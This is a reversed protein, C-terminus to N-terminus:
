HFLLAGPHFTKEPSEGETERVPPPPPPLPPPTLLPPWPPCSPPPPPPPPFWGENINKNKQKREGRPQDLWVNFLTETILVSKLMDLPPTGLSGWHKFRGRASPPHTLTVFFVVVCMCAKHSVAEWHVPSPGGTFFSNLNLTKKRGQDPRDGADSAWMFTNLPPLPMKIFWPQFYSYGLAGNEPTKWGVSTFHLIRSVGQLFRKLKSM